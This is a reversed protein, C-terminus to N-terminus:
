ASTRRKTVLWKGRVTKHKQYRGDPMLFMIDAEGCYIVTQNNQM